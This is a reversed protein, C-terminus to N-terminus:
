QELSSSFTKWINLTEPAIVQITGEEKWTDSFTDFFLNTYNVGCKVINDPSIIIPPYTFSELTTYLSNNKYWKIHLLNITESFPMNRGNVATGSLFSQTVTIDRGSIDYFYGVDVIITQVFPVIARNEVPYFWIYLYKTEKHTLSDAKANVSFSLVSTFTIVFIILYVTYKRLM